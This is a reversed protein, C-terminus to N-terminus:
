KYTRRLSLDSVSRPALYVLPNVPEEEHRLEFYFAGSEDVTGVPDLVSIMNGAKVQIQGLGGYVSSLGNKHQIIVLQGYQRFAEAYLVKGAQVARVSRGSGTDIKIGNSILLQNLDKSYQRGFNQTVTGHSPWPLTGKLTALAAGSTTRGQRAALTHEKHDRLEQVMVRLAQASQELQDREEKLRAQKQIAEQWRSWFSQQKDRLQDAEVIQRQHEGQWKLEELRLSAEEASALSLEHRANQSTDCLKSVVVAPAMEQATLARRGVNATRQRYIEQVWYRLMGDAARTRLTQTTVTWEAADALMRTQSWRQKLNEAKQRVHEASDRAQTWQSKADEAKQQWREAEREKNQMNSRLSSLQKEQQKIQKEYRKLLDDYADAHAMIPMFLLPFILSNRM